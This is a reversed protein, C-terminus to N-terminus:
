VATSTKKTAEEREKKERVAARLWDIDSKFILNSRKANRMEGFGGLFSILDEGAETNIIKDNISVVTNTGEEKKKDAWNFFRTILYRALAVWSAVISLKFILYAVGFWFAYISAEGLLTLILKLEEIM